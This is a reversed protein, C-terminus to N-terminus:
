SFMFAYSDSISVELKEHAPIIHDFTSTRGIAILMSDFAAKNWLFKFGNMCDFQLHTQFAIKKEKKVWELRSPSTLHELLHLAQNSNAVLISFIIDSKKEGIQLM